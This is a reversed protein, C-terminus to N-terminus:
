DHNLGGHRTPIEGGRRELRCAYCETFGGQDENCCSLCGCSGCRTLNYAMDGCAECELPYTGAASIPYDTVLRM